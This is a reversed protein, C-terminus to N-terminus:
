ADPPTPWVAQRPDTTQEPLDRLAQRYEAWGTRAAAPVDPIMRWDCSALLADRHARLREWVWEDPLDGDTDLDSRYNWTDAM